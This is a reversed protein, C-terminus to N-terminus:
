CFIANRIVREPVSFCYFGFHILLSTTLYLFTRFDHYIHNKKSQTLRRGFIESRVSPLSAQKKLSFFQGPGPRVSIDKM